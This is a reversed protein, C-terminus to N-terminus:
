KKQNCLPLTCGEEIARAMYQTEFQKVISVEITITEDLIPDFETIVKRSIPSGYVDLYPINNEAMIRTMMANTKDKGQYAYGRTYFGSAAATLGLKLLLDNHYCGYVLDGIYEYDRKEKSKVFTFVNGNPVLKGLYIGKQKLNTEITTM